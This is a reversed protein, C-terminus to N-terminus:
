QMISVLTGIISIIISIIFYNNAKKNSKVNDNKINTALWNIEDIYEQHFCYREFREINTKFIDLIYKELTTLDKGYSRKKNILNFAEVTRLELLKQDTETLDIKNDKVVEKIAEAKYNKNDDVYFCGMMPFDYVYKTLEIAKGNLKSYYENYNMFLEESVLRNMLKEYDEKYKDAYYNFDKIM